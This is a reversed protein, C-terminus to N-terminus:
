SICLLQSAICAWSVIVISPAYLLHGLRTLTCNRKAKQIARCLENSANHVGVGANFFCVWVGFVVVVLWGLFWGFQM